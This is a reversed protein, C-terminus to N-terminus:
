ISQLLHRELLMNENVTPARKKAKIIKESFSTIFKDKLEPPDEVPASTVPQSHTHTAAKYVHGEDPSPLQALKLCEQLM